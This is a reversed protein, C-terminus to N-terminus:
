RRKTSRRRQKDKRHKMEGIGVEKEANNYVIWKEGGTIM